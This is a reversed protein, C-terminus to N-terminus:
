IEGERLNGPNVMASIDDTIATEDGAIQDVGIAGSELGLLRLIDLLEGFSCDYLSETLLM